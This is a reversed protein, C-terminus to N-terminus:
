VLQKVSQYWLVDKFALGMHLLYNYFQEVIMM